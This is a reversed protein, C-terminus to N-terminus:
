WANFIFASSEKDCKYLISFLNTSINQNSLKTEGLLTGDMIWKINESKKIGIVKENNIIFEPNYIQITTRGFDFELGYATKTLKKLEWIADGPKGYSGSYISISGNSITGGNKYESILKDRSIEKFNEIKYYDTM